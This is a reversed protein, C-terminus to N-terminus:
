RGAGYQEDTVEEMWEVTKGDLREVIAIHTMATARTAGHWHKVHPPIWVVDGSEIVQIPQGWQQIWGTGTTVILTQGLPHTHWATRAGPEFSVTAGLSRAPDDAQFLPEVRAVGTFHAAPAREMSRETKHFIRITQAPPPAPNTAQVPARARQKLAQTLVKAANAGHKNGITEEIVAVLSRLQAETLGTNMGVNFHSSLQPNVADLTALASITAIERSQWDLNDRGFVDGFLHGRLFMDLEPAFELHKGSAPAGVLTTMIETGLQVSTKDTPMPTPERGVNDVVGTRRREDLVDMFTTIANLSRPFGAYAYLQVLVEKIEAITWGSDLGDKLATRLKALDGNATFAAIVVLRQQKTSLAQTNMPEVKVSREEARIARYAPAAGQTGRVDSITALLLVLM